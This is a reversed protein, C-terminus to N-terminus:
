RLLNIGGAIYIFALILFSNNIITVCIFSTGKKTIGCKVVM